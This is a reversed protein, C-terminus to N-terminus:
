GSLLQCEPLWPRRKCIPSPGAPEDPGPTVHIRVAAASEAVLGDADTVRLRVDSAVIEGAKTGALDFRASAQAGTAPIPIADRTWRHLLPPRLDVHSAAQYTRDLVTAGEEIALQRPGSITVAPARPAELYIGGAFLGGASVSARGYLMVVKRGGQILVEGPILQAAACGAGGSLQPADVSAIVIQQVLFIAGVPPLTLLFIGTLANLWSTDVDVDS